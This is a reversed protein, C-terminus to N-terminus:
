DVNEYKVRIRSGQIKKKNLAEIAADAESENPMEIFGFGKSTGTVEDMVLTCSEVTGHLKFLELLENKTMTKALGLVMIKM